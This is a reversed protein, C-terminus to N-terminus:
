CRLPCLQLSVTRLQTWIATSNAAPRDPHHGVVNSVLECVDMHVYIGVAAAANLVALIQPIPGSGAGGPMILMILM